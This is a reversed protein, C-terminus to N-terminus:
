PFRSERVRFTYEGATELGATAQVRVAWTGAASFAAPLQYVWTGVGPNTANAQTQTTVTGDPAITKFTIASPDAANGALNTFTATITPRDGIDYTTAM